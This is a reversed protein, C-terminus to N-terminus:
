AAVATSPHERAPQPEPERGDREHPTPRMPLEPRDEATAHHSHPSPPRQGPIRVEREEDGDSTLAALMTRMASLTGRLLRGADLLEVAYGATDIQALVTRAQDLGPLTRQNDADVAQTLHDLIVSTGHLHWVTTNLGHPAPDSQDLRDIDALTHRATRVAVDLPPTWTPTTTTPTHADTRKM